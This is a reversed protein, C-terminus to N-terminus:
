VFDIIDQGQHQGNIEDTAAKEAAGRFAARAVKNLQQDYFRIIIL